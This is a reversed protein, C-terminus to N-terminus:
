KGNKLITQEAWDRCASIFPDVKSDVFRFWHRNCVLLGEQDRGFFHCINCSKLQQFHEPPKLNYIDEEM